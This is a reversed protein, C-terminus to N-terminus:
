RSAALAAQLAQAIAVHGRSSLHVDYPRYLLSSKGGQRAAAQLMPTLDILTIGLKATEQRFFERQVQSFRPMITSLTPDRFVVVDAYATYASPTYSLVPKFRHRKALDAYSRLGERWVEWLEPKILDDHLARAYVAEDTDSNEINFAVTGDAFRFDYKFNQSKYRKKLGRLFNPGEPRKPGAHEYGVKVAIFAMLYSHNLLWPAERVSVNETRPESRRADIIKQADRLDNGEYVNMIVVRPSLQIGHSKLIQLEEHIGIGARGLNYATTKLRRGLEATWTAEPAISTCFTFSDGLTVIRSHGNVATAESNCFGREDMVVKDVGDEDKTKLYLLTHPQYLTLAPGGDDRSLTRMRSLRPLNMKQAIADKIAPEFKTLDELPILQPFVRFALELLAGIVAANVLVVAAIGRLRHIKMM